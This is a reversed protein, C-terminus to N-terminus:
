FLGSHKGVKRVGEIVASFTHYLWAFYVQKELHVNNRTSDKKVRCRDNLTKKLSSNLNKDSNFPLCKNVLKDFLSTHNKKEVTNRMKRLQREGIFGKM